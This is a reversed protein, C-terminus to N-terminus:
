FTKRAWAIPLGVLFLHALIGNILVSTIVPPWVPNPFASSPVVILNMLLYFALGYLMGGLAWNKRVWPVAKWVFSFGIAALLAISFHLVVGLVASSYEGKYAEVGQVGSAISQLIRIPRAGRTAFFILADALDLVGALLGGTLTAKM